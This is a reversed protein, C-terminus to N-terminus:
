RGGITRILSDEVIQCIEQRNNHVAPYLFPQAAQGSIRFFRGQPPLERGGNWKRATAPDLMSSHVWWPEPSYRVQVDPSVGEHRSAGKPGTGFEVYMAYEMNTGIHASAGRSDGIVSYAISDRLAGTEGGPCGLVAQGRVLEGVREMVRPSSCAGELRSLAGHFARINPM